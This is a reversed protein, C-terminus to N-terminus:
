AAPQIGKVLYRMRGFELIDGEELRVPQWVPRGNKRTMNVNSLNEIMIGDESSYLCFQSRSITADVSLYLRGSEMASPM